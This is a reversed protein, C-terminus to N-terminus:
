HITTQNQQVFHVYLSLISFFVKFLMEQIAPWFEICTLM